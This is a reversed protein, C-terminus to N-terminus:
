LSYARAEACKATDQILNLLEFREDADLGEPLPGKFGISAVTAVDPRPISRLISLALSQAEKNTM